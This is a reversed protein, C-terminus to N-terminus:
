VNDSLVVCFLSSNEVFGGEHDSDFIVKNLWFQGQFQGMRDGNIQSKNLWVIVESDTRLTVSPRNYNVESGAREVM